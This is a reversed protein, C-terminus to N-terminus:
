SYMACTVPQSWILYKHFTNGGSIMSPPKGLKGNEWHQTRVKVTNVIYKLKQTQPLCNLLSKLIKAAQYEELYYYVMNSLPPRSLTFSRNLIKARSYMIVSPQNEPYIGIPHIFLFYKRCVNLSLFTYNITTLRYADNQEPWFKKKTTQAAYVADLGPERWSAQLVALICLDQENKDLSM